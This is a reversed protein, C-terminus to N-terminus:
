KQLSDTASMAERLKQATMEDIGILVYLTGNPGYTRKIIKTDTLSESTLKTTSNNDATNKNKTDESDAVEPQVSEHLSQLLHVRADAAAMQEMYAMGAKSKESSGVVAVALGEAQPNCVWAPARKKSKPFFCKKAKNVKAPMAVTALNDGWAYGNMLMAVVLLMCTNRM